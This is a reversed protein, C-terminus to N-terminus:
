SSYELLQRNSARMLTAHIEYAGSLRSITKRRELTALTVRFKWVATHRRRKKVM